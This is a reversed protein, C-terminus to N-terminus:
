RGRHGLSPEIEKLVRDLEEELARIQTRLNHVTDWNPTDWRRHRRAMGSSTPEVDRGCAVCVMKERTEGQEREWEIIGDRWLQAEELEGRAEAHEAFRNWKARDEQTIQRIEYTRPVM